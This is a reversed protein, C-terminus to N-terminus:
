FSYRAGLVLSRGVRPALDKLFSTHDRAEEDLLNTGKFFIVLDEPGLDVRYMMELNLMTFADTALEGAGIRNIGDSRIWSLQTSVNNYDHNLKLGYKMPPIRPVYAGSSLEAELYDAMVGLSFDHGNVNGLAYDLEFEIGSFDA